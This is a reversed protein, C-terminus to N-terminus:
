TVANNWCRLLDCGCPVIKHKSLQTREVEVMNTTCVEYHYSTVNICLSGLTFCRGITYMLWVQFRDISKLLIRGYL